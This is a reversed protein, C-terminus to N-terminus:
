FHYTGQVGFQNFTLATTTTSYLDIILNELVNIGVGFYVRKSTLSFTSKKEVTETETTGLDFDNESSGTKVTRESFGGREILTKEYDTYTFEVKSALRFTLQKTLDWEMALPLALVVSIEEYMYDDNDGSDDTTTTEASSFKGDTNADNKVVTTQQHKLSYARDDYNFTLKPYVGVRVNDALDNRYKLATYIEFDTDQKKNYEYTDTINTESSEDGKNGGSTYYVCKTTVSEYKAEDLNINKIDYQGGLYITTKKSLSYTVEPALEIRSNKLNQEYYLFLEDANSIGPIGKNETLTDAYVVNNDPDNVYYKTLKHTNNVEQDGNDFVLRIQLQPTFDGVKTGVEFLHTINGRDVNSIDEDTMVTYDDGDEDKVINDTLRNYETCNNDLELTYLLGLKITGLDLGTGLGVEIFSYDEKLNPDNDQDVANITQNIGDEVQSTTENSYDPSYQFLLVSPGISFLNWSAGFAFLSGWYTPDVEFTISNRLKFYDETRQMYDYTDVWIGATSTKRLSDGVPQVAGAFLTSSLLLFLLLTISLRNM